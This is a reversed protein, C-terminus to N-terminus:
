HAARWTRIVAHQTEIQLQGIMESLRDAETRFYTQAQEGSWEPPIGLHETWVREVIQQIAENMQPGRKTSSVSCTLSTTTERRQDRWLEGRSAADADAGAPNSEGREPCGRGRRGRM